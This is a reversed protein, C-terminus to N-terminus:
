RRRDISEQLLRKKRITLHESELKQRDRELQQRRIVELVHGLRKNEVVDATTVGEKRFARAPLDKGNHQIRVSGDEQELVVVRKRALRKTAETPEIVFLTRKYHVTLSDSLKREDKCCLVSGLSEHPGLPRHADHSSKPERAFRRNFDERFRPLWHNGAEIGSIKALRLEKVLRDQLTLNVREVRGKAQPSNACVIDINLEGLARAFQTPGVLGTKTDKANCRFITAKDSYFAVPKGHIDIYRKTSAFYDFTSESECFRLEMLQGTADDIFVLLTCRPGRDEFWDHECGDIQVLEGLCERRHRPQHVPGRRQARPAWIGEAIMWQRLTEVSVKVRHLEVLKEHALTPGFDSYRDRVLGICEARIEDALRRNSPRGRKKSILAAAGDARYARILREIQRLSLGLREAAAVQTIRREHVLLLVEARELERRSMTLTGLLM